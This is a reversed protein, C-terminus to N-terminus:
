RRRQYHWVAISRRKAPLRPSMVYIGTKHWCLESFVSGAANGLKRYDLGLVRMGEYVDWATVFGRQKGLHKAVARAQKLLTPDTKPKKPPAKQRFHTVTGM